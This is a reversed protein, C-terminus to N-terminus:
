QAPDLGAPPRCPVQRPARHFPIAACARHPRERVLDLLRRAAVTRFPSHLLGRMAKLHTNRSMEGGMIGNWDPEGRRSVDFGQAQLERDDFVAYVGSRGGRPFYLIATGSGDGPYQPVFRCSAF